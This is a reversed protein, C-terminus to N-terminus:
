LIPLYEKKEKWQPIVKVFLFLHVKCGLLKAIDHRAAQGIAKLQQGGKGLVIKKHAEREVVVIQNIRVSNDDREQWLENEVTLGYPLEERLRLFLKERTIETALFRIPLDSMQDEPFHWPGEPMHSVFWQRLDDVGDGKRASIMFTQDFSTGENYFSALELLREKEVADVKNLILAKPQRYLSIKEAIAKDHRELPKTCDVLLGIADGDKAGLWANDVMVKEFNKQADFIGPTDVYICQTDGVVEIGRILHRTTQVKPTVIAIKSGILQNLLTSKGANPAGVLSIFGCKTSPSQTM